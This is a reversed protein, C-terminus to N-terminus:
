FASRLPPRPPLEAAERGRRHVLVVRDATVQNVPLALGGRAGCALRAQAVLAMGRLTRANQQEGAFLGVLAREVEKARRPVHAVFALQRHRDRPPQILRQRRVQALRQRHRLACAARQVPSFPRKPPTMSAGRVDSTGLEYLVTAENNTAMPPGGTPAADSATWSPQVFVSASRRLDGRVM